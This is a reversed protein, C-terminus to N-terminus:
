PDECINNDIYKNHNFYGGGGEGLFYPLPVAM